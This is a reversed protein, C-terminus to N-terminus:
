QCECNREPLPSVEAMREDKDSGSYGFTGVLHFASRAEQVKEVPLGTESALAEESPDKGEGRYVWPMM